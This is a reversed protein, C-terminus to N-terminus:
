KTSLKTSLYPCAFGDFFRDLFDLTRKAVVRDGHFLLDGDADATNARPSPKEGSLKKPWLHRQSRELFAHIGLMTSRFTASCIRSASKIKRVASEKGRPPLTHPVRTM